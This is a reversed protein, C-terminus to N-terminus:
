LINILDNKHEKNSRYKNTKKSKLIKRMKDKNNNTKKNSGTSIKYKSIITVKM